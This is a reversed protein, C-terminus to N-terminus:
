TCEACAVRYANVAQEVRQTSWRDPIEKGWRDVPHILPVGSEIATKAVGLSLGRVWLVNNRQDHELLTKVKSKPGTENAQLLLPLLDEEIANSVALAAMEVSTLHRLLVERRVRGRWPENLRLFRFPVHPVRPPADLTESYRSLEDGDDFLDKEDNEDSDEDRIQETLEVLAAETVPLELVEAAIVGAVIKETLVCSEILSVLDVPRGVKLSTPNLLAEGAARVTQSDHELTSRVARVMAVLEAFFVHSGERTRLLKAIKGPPTVELRPVGGDSPALSTLLVCARSIARATDRPPPHLLLEQIYARCAAPANISAPLLHQLLPPVSRSPLAGLQQATALSLPYPRHLSAPQSGPGGDVKVIEFKTDPALNYERRVIDLVGSVPDKSDYRQHASSSAGNTNDGDRGSAEVAAALIAGIEMRLRRTQGSIGRAAAGLAGFRLNYFFLTLRAHAFLTPIQSLGRVYGADLSDHRFLPPAHGASALRAAASEATLGQLVTVRRLDCEVSVLTYGIATAAVAVVPPPAHGDFAVDDGNAAAGVVYQPSAPTVISAVYREKPSPRQGYTNM